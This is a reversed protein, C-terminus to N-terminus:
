LKHKLNNQLIEKILETAELACGYSLTIGAGGHGYNHVIRLVKNDVKITEMELRIRTRVPRLGVAINLVPAKQLNYFHCLYVTLIIIVGSPSFHFRLSYFRTKRWKIYIVRCVQIAPVLEYCKELIMKTDSDSPNENNDNM